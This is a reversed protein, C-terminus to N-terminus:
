SAVTLRLILRSVFSTRLCTNRSSCRRPRLRAAASSASPVSGLSRVTFRLFISCVEVPGGNESQPRLSSLLYSFIHRNVCLGSVMEVRVQKRRERLSTQRRLLPRRTELVQGPAPPTALNRKQHTRLHTCLVRRGLTPPPERPVPPRNRERHSTDHHRDHDPQNHVPPRPALRPPRRLDRECGRRRLHRDWFWRRRRCRRSGSGSRRRNRRRCQYRDRRFCNPWWRCRRWYCRCCHQILFANRVERDVSTRHRISRQRLSCRSQSRLVRTVLSRHLIGGSKWWKRRPHFLLCLGYRRLGRLVTCSEGHFCLGRRQRQLPECAIKGLDATHNGIPATSRDALRQNHDIGCGTVQM